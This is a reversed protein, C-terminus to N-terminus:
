PASVGYIVRGKETFRRLGHKGTYAVRLTWLTQGIEHPVPLPINQKDETFEIATAYPRDALLELTFALKAAAARLRSRSTEYRPRWWSDQAVLPCHLLSWLAEDLRILADFEEEGGPSKDGLDALWDCLMTRYKDRLRADMPLLRNEYTAKRLGLRLDPDRESLQLWENVLRAIEGVWPRDAAAKIVRDVDPDIVLGLDLGPYDCDQWAPVLRGQELDDQTLEDIKGTQGSRVAERARDRWSRAAEGPLRLLALHLWEWLQGATCEPRDPVATEGLHCAAIPDALLERRLAVLRTRSEDDSAVDESTTHPRETVTGTPPEPVIPPGVAQEVEDVRNLAIAESQVTSGNPALRDAPPALPRSEEPAPGDEPPAQAQPAPEAQSVTQAKSVTPAEPAVQSAPVPQTSRVPRQRNSELRKILDEAALQVFELQDRDIAPAPSDEFRATHLTTALRILAKRLRTALESDFRPDAAVAQIAADLSRPAADSEAISDDAM